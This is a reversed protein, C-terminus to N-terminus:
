GHGLQLIFTSSFIWDAHKCHVVVLKQKNSGPYMDMVSRLYIIIMSLIDRFVNSM